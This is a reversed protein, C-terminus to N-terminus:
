REVCARTLTINHYRPLDVKTLVTFLTKGWRRTLAEWEPRLNLKNFLIEAWRFRQVPSYMRLVKFGQSQAVESLYTATFFRVHYPNHIQSPSNGRLYQWQWVYYGFNPTTLIAVAGPKLSGNIQALFHYPDFVHEIVEVSVCIEFQEDYPIGQSVDIREAKLGKEQCRAVAESSIDIGIADFGLGVIKELLRGNGCGVELVRQNRDFTELLELM